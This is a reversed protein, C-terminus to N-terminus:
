GCPHVPATTVATDPDEDVRLFVHRAVGPIGVAAAMEAPTKEEPSM